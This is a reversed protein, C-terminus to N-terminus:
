QAVDSASASPTPSAPFLVRVEIDGLLPSTCPHEADCVDIRNFRGDIGQWIEILETAPDVIWYERVGYREYIQFKDLRDRRASSPSLIEVVLDPAGRVYAAELSANANEASVWLLDPEPINAEDLYIGTPAMFVHGSPVKKVLMQYILGLILQHVTTPPPMLIAEGNILEHIKNTEPLMLFEEATMHKVQVSM